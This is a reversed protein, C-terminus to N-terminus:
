IGRRPWYLDESPYSSFKEWQFNPIPLGCVHQKLEESSFLAQSKTTTCNCTGRMFYIRSRNVIEGNPGNMLPCDNLSGHIFRVRGNVVVSSRYCRASGRFYGQESIGNSAFFWNSSLWRFHILHLYHFLFRTQVLIAQDDPQRIARMYLYSAKWFRFSRYTNRSLIGGGSLKFYGMERNSIAIDVDSNNFRHFLDRVAHPDCPFVHTDLIFNLRFPPYANYLVRTYWQKGKIDPVDSEDIPYIIDIFPHM